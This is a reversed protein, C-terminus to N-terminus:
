RGEHTGGKKGEKESLPFPQALSQCLWYVFSTGEDCYENVSTLSETVLFVCVHIIRAEFSLMFLFIHSCMQM